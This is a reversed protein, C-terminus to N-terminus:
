TSAGSRAISGQPIAYPRALFGGAMCRQGDDALSEIEVLAGPVSGREKMDLENMFVVMRGAFVGGYRDGFGYITTNYQNHSRLTALRLISAEAVPSNEGRKSCWFTRAAPRRTGRGIV